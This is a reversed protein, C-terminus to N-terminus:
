NSSKEDRKGRQGNVLVPNVRLTRRVTVDEVRARSTKRYRHRRSRYLPAASPRASSLESAIIDIPWAEKEAMLTVCRSGHPALECHVGRQLFASEFRQDWKRRFVPVTGTLAIRLYRRPLDALAHKTSRDVSSKDAKESGLKAPLMAPTALPRGSPKWPPKGRWGSLSNRM